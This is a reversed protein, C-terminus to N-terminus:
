KGTIINKIYEEIENIADLVSSFNENDLVIFSGKNNQSLLQGTRDDIESWTYSLKIGETSPIKAYGTVKIM